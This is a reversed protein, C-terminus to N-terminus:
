KFNSFNMKLQIKPQAATISINKSAVEQKKTEQSARLSAELKSRLAPSQEMVTKFPAPYMPGIRKLRELSYEHLLHSHKTSTRQQTGDTLMEILCPVLICM